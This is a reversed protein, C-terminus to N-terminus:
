STTEKKKNTKKKKQSVSTAKTTTSSQAVGNLFFDKIWLVEGVKLHKRFLQKIEEYNEADFDCPVEIETDGKIVKKTKRILIPLINTLIDQDNSKNIMLELSISDGMTMKDLTEFAVYTEGEIVWRNTKISKITGSAWLCKEALKEYSARDLRKIDEVPADLLIAFMEIAYLIKSKYDNLVSTHKMIKEFMALNVENWSEPLDYDRNNIEFTIM